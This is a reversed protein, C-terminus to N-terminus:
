VTMGAHRVLEFTIRMASTNSSKTAVDQVLWVNLGTTSGSIAIYNTDTLTVADGVAPLIPVAVGSGASGTIVAEFTASENQDYFYKGITVGEADKITEMESRRSHDRSQLRGNTLTYTTSGVGWHCGVGKYINPM